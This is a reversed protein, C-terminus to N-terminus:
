MADDDDHDHDPDNTTAVHAIDWPGALITKRRQSRWKLCPALCCTSSLVVWFLRRAVADRLAVTAAACVLLTVATHVSFLAHASRRSSRKAVVHRAAPWFAFVVVSCSVFSFAHLDSSLRSALLTTSFLAANLSVTGGRFAPRGGDDDDDDHDNAHDDDGNAHDYDCLAVHALLGGHALASVTDSSYSATLTRLVSSLVRLIGALLLGDAFRQVSRKRRNAASYERSDSTRLAVLLLAVFLLLLVLREDGDGDGNDLNWRHFSVLLSTLAIEQGVVFSRTTMESLSRQPASM